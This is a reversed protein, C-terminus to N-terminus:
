GSTLLYLSGTESASARDTTLNPEPPTAVPMAPRPVIGAGNRILASDQGANGTGTDPTKDLTRSSRAIGKAM